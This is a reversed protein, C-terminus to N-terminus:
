LRKLRRNLRFAYIKLFIDEDLKSKSIALSSKARDLWLKYDNAM